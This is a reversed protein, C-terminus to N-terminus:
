RFVTGKWYLLFMLRQLVFGSFIGASRRRRPGFIVFTLTGEYIRRFFLTM